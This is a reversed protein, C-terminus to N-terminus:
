GPPEIGQEKREDDSVEDNWWLVPCAECYGDSKPISEQAAAKITNLVAYIGYDCPKTTPIATVKEVFNSFTDGIPKNSSGTHFIRNQHM